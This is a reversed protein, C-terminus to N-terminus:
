RAGHAVVEPPAPTPITIGPQGTPALVVTPFGSVSPQAGNAKPLFAKVIDVVIVVPTPRHSAPSGSGADKPRSPSPSRALRGDRVAAGQRAGPNAQASARAPATDGSDYTRRQVLEGTAGDLFTYQIEVM